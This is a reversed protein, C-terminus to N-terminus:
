VVALQHRRTRGAAITLDIKVRGLSTIIAVAQRAITTAAGTDHFGIVHTRRGTFRARRGNNAPVALEARTFGAVVPVCLTPVAARFAAVQDLSPVHTSLGPSGARPHEQAAVPHGIGIFTAVVAVEQASITARVAAAQLRAELALTAWGHARGGGTAIV